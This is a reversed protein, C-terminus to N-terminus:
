RSPYSAGRRGRKNDECGMHNCNPNLLCSQTTIITGQGDTIRAGGEAVFGASLRPVGFIFEATKALWDGPRRPRAFDTGGWGNFNWDIAVVEQESQEGRLAFTPAIDRMWIDDVPAEIIELNACSSFEHGAEQAASGCALVRVPEHRAITQIM